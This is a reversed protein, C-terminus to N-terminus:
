KPLRHSVWLAVSAVAAGVVGAATGAMTMVRSLNARTAAPHPDLSDYHKGISAGIRDISEKMGPLAGKIEGVERSITTLLEYHKDNEPM